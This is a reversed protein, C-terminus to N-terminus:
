DYLEDAAENFVTNILELYNETGENSNLESFLAFAKSDTFSEGLDVYLYLEHFAKYTDTEKFQKMVNKFVDIMNNDFEYIIDEAIYKRFKAKIKAKEENLLKNIDEFEHSVDWADICFAVYEPDLLDIIMSERMHPVTNAVLSVGQANTLALSLTDKHDLETKAFDEVCALLKDELNLVLLYERALFSKSEDDGENAAKEIWDYYDDEGKSCIAIYRLATKDGREYAKLYWQKATGLDNSKQYVVGLNYAGASSPLLEEAKLFADRAEMPKGENFLELGKYLYQKTKFFNIESIADKYGLALAKEFFALSTNDDQAVYFGEKYLTGLMYNAAANDMDAAEKFLNYAKEFNKSEYANMAKKYISESSKKFLGM